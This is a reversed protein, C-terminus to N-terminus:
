GVTVSVINNSRLLQFRSWSKGLGCDHIIDSYSCLSSSIVPFQQLALGEAQLDTKRRGSKSLGGHCPSGHLNIYWWYGRKVKFVTKKHEPHHLPNTDKWNLTLLLQGVEAGTLWTVTWDLDIIINKVHLSSREFRLNDSFSCHGQVQLTGSM